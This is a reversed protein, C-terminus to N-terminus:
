GDARHEDAAGITPRVESLQYSIASLQTAALDEIILFRTIVRDCVHLLLAFEGGVTLDYRPITFSEAGIAVIREGDGYCQVRWFTVVDGLSTFYEVVAERGRHEPATRGGGPPTVEFVVDEALHAALADFNRSAFADDLIRQIWGTSNM